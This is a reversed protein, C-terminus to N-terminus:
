ASAVGWLGGAKNGGNIGVDINSECDDLMIRVGRIVQAENPADAHPLALRLPRPPTAVIIISFPLKGDMGGRSVLRGLTVYICVTYPIGSAPGVMDSLEPVLDISRNTAGMM